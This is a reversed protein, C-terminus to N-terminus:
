KRYIRYSSSLRLKQDTVIPSIMTSKSLQEVMSRAQYKVEVVPRIRTDLERANIAHFLNWRMKVLTKSHVPSLWATPDFNSIEILLLGISCEFESSVPLTNTVFLLFLIFWDPLPCLHRQRM